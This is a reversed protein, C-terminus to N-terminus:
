VGVMVTIACSGDIVHGCSALAGFYAEPKGEASVTSSGQIITASNHLGTFPAHPAVSDGVVSCIFGEVLVSPAGPGLIIGGQVTSVGVKAKQPM